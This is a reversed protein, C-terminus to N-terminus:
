ITSPYTNDTKTHNEFCTHPICLSIFVLVVKFGPNSSVSQGDILVVPRLVREIIYRFRFFLLIACQHKSCGTVTCVRHVESYDLSDLQSPKKM